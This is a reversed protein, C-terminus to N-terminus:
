RNDGHADGGQNVARVLDQTSKLMARAQSQSLSRANYDAVRRLQLNDFLTSRHKTAYIKRRHILQGSFTGLVYKHEWRNATPQLRAHILAAVAAQFCAYYCRNACSNYRGAAFDSEASALSEHAKTLYLTADDDGEM